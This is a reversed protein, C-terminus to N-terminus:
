KSTDEKIKQRILKEYVSIVILMIMEKLVFSLAVVFLGINIIQLSEISFLKSFDSNLLCFAIASVLVGMWRNILAWIKFFLTYDDQEGFLMDIVRNILFIFLTRYFSPENTFLPPLMLFLSILSFIVKLNFPRNDVMEM